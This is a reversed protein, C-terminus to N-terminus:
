PDWHGQTGEGEEEGEGEDESDGDGEMELVTELGEAVEEETGTTDINLNNLCATM